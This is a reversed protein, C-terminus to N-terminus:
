RVYGKKRGWDRWFVAMERMKGHSEPPVPDDRSIMSLAWFWHDLERDLEALILPLADKGLGIIKQYAPHMAIDSAFSTSTRERKWQETLERFEEEVDGQEGVAVLEIVQPTSRTWVFAFQNMKGMTPSPSGVGFQKCTVSSNQQLLEFGHM